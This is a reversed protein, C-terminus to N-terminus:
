RDEFMSIIHIVARRKADRKEYYSWNRKV